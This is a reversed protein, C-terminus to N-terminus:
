FTKRYGNFIWFSTSFGASTGFTITATNKLHITQGVLAGIQGSNSVTVKTWKAYFVTGAGSGTNDLEITQFARSTVLDTGTVDSCDPSCGATSYYAILQVGTSSANNIVGSANKFSVIPGDVMLDARTTGLSDAPKINGSQTLNLNGTIWANGQMTVRCSKEVTVNGTIKVNAPWTKTGGVATCSAAAATMDSAKASKQANRDHPPLSLPPVGSSSILGPNTMGATTTQNNARVSGYIRASNSISIPEGNEGLTCLRPYTANAPNPCVQHAVSLNVPTTILGIQATSSLTASGNIYIDGGLVKSSNEMILGGVGTVISYNGSQVKKLNANIIVKSQPTVSSAPRYLKATSTMIKDNSGVDTVTVDYTTKVNGTTDFTITAPTGAWTKNLTIQNMGYDLGADAVMQTQVRFVDKQAVIVNNTALSTYNFAILILFPLVIVVSILVAGKSDKLLKKM